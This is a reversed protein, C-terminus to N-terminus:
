STAVLAAAIRALAEDIDADTTQFSTVLRIVGPGM